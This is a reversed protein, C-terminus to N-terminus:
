RNPRAASPWAPPRAEDEWSSRTGRGLQGRDNMGWCLVSKEPTLVCAYGYGVSVREVPPLPPVKFQVYENSATRLPTSSWCSFRGDTHIACGACDLCSYVGDCSVDRVGESLIPRSRWDDPGQHAYYSGSEHASFNKVIGTAGLLCVSIGGGQVSVVGGQLDYRAFRWLNGWCYAHRDAGLACGQDKGVYADEVPVPVRIRTIAEKEASGPLHLRSLEALDLNLCGLKGDLSLICNEPTTQVLKKANSFRQSAQPSTESWCWVSHDSLLACAAWDGSEIESASMPLSVKTPVLTARPGWCWVEGSETLACTTSSASVQKVRVSPGQATGSDPATAVVATTSTTSPTDGVFSAPSPSASGGSRSCGAAGAILAALLSPRKV